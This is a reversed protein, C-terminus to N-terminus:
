IYTIDEEGRPIREKGGRDKHQDRQSIESLMTIGTGDVKRCIVYNRNETSYYEIIYIMNEKDM